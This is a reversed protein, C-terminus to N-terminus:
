AFLRYAVKLAFGEGLGEERYSRLGALAWNLIAAGHLAPNALERKALPDPIITEDFSVIRLRRRMGSDTMDFAPLKNCALFLLFSPKYEFSRAYLHRVRLRDGGTLAKVLATDFRADKDAESAVVLRAGALDALDDRGTRAGSKLFTQFQAVRAYSGFSAMLAALFTSKGSGGRGVLAVFVEEETNGALALGAAKQLFREKAADNGTWRSLCFDWLESEANPDFSIPAVGTLLDAASHPRLSFTALDLTGNALNLLSSAADFDALTAAIGRESRALALMAELRRRDLSFEAWRQLKGRTWENEIAAAEAFIGVVTEKAFELATEREDPAWRVGDYLYFAKESVVYRLRDGYRSVLRRANGLDTCLLGFAAESDLGFFPQRAREEKPYVEGDFTRM